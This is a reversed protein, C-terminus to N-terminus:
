PSSTSYYSVDYAFSNIIPPDFLSGQGSVRPGAGDQDRPLRGQCQGCWWWNPQSSGAVADNYLVRYAFGGTTHPGSANNAFFLCQCKSCWNWGPQYSPGVTGSVNYRLQVAYTCVGATQQEHVV